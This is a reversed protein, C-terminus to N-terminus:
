LVWYEEETLEVEKHYGINNPLAGSILQSTSRQMPVTNGNTPDWAFVPSHNEGEFDYGTLPIVQRLVPVRWNFGQETLNREEFLPEIKDRFNGGLNEASELHFDFFFTEDVPADYKGRIMDNDIEVILRSVPVDYTINKNRGPKASALGQHIKNNISEIAEKTLPNTVEGDTNRHKNYNLSVSSSYNQNIQFGYDQNEEVTDKSMRSGSAVIRQISSNFETLIDRANPLLLVPIHYEEKRSDGREFQSM